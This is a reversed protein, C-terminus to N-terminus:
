RFISVGYSSVEELVRSLLIENFYQSSSGEQVLIDDRIREGSDGTQMRPTTVTSGSAPASSTAVSSTQNRADKLSKELTSVRSAMEEMMTMKTRRSRPGSAPYSCQKDSRTCATCPLKKDCRIKKRNCNFCSRLNSTRRGRQEATRHDSVADDTDLDMM